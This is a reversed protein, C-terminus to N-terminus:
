VTEPLRTQEKEVLAKVADVTKVVDANENKTVLFAITKRGNMRPIVREDEFEDRIIALDKVRVFAGSQTSRVIVDGVELPDRFQALTVVNRESTYSELSGGSARVNREEIANIIERMPIKYKMMKDPLVEVKVERARYGYRTISAM